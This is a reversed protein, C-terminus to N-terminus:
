ASQKGEDLWDPHIIQVPRGDALLDPNDLDEIRILAIARDGEHSRIEGVAKGNKEIPTGTAPAGGKIIAPLLRKRIKGRHKTRATLEQGIYCGKTFDVGNLLDLNAELALTKDALYDRSGDLLGLDLRRIEYSQASPDIPAPSEANKGLIARLGIGQHRPDRYIVGQPFSAAAGATDGVAPWQPLNEQSLIDALIDSSLVWIDFDDSRDTIEAKSRLRYLMLRRLLDAKQGAECDLYISGDEAESLFFDFQMKGQPTLLAAYLAKDPSLAHINQTLIAQLFDRAEPGKISLLARDPLRHAFSNM